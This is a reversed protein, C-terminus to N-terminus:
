LTLNRITITSTFLKRLKQDGAAAVTQDLVNFETEDEDSQAIEPSSILIGVRVAVPVGEQMANLLNSTECLYQSQLCVSSEPTIADATAWSNVSFDPPFDTDVGYLVQFSEVGDIINQSSIQAVLNTPGAGYECTWALNQANDVQFTLRKYLAKPEGTEPDNTENLVHLCDTSDQYMIQLTDNGNDGGDVSAPTIPYYGSLPQNWVPARFGAKRIEESVLHMALRGDEQVRTLGEQARYTQKTGAFLQTIVLMVILALGMAVLLEILTFGRHMRNLAKM